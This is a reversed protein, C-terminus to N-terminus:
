VSGRTTLERASQLLDKIFAEALEGVDGNRRLRDRGQELHRELQMPTAVKPCPCGLAEELFRHEGDSLEVTECGALEM